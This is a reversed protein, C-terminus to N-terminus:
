KSPCLPVPSRHTCDCSQFAVRFAGELYSAILLLGWRHPWDGCPLAAMAASWRDTNCMMWVLSSIHSQM